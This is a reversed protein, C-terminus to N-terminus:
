ILVSFGRHATKRKPGVATKSQGEKIYVSVCVRQVLLRDFSAPTVIGVFLGLLKPKVARRLM